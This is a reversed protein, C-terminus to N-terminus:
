SGDAQRRTRAPVFGGAARTHQTGGDPIPLNSDGGHRIPPRQKGHTTTGEQNKYEIPFRHHKYQSIRNASRRVYTPGFDDYFDVLIGEATGKRSTRGAVQTAMILGQTGDCRIVALLYPLDVAESWKTTAITVRTKQENMSKEIAKPEFAEIIPIQSELIIGDKVLKLKKDKSLDGLVLSAEPFRKWLELVHEATKCILLIQDTPKFLEACADRIADNRLDNRWYAERETEANNRGPRVDPGRVTYIICRLPVVAGHAVGEEYSVEQIVPGFYAQVLLDAGDQRGTPSASMGFMRAYHIFRDLQPTVTNTAAGHCEDYVVLQPWDSPIQHMSQASCVILDADARYKAKAEGSVKCILAKDGCVEVSREYLGRLAESKTTVVLIRTGPFVLPLHTIVFSKGYGTPCNIMGCQKTALYAFTEEQGPRMSKGDLASFDPSCELKRKDVVEFKIGRKALGKKLTELLGPFTAARENKIDCLVVKESTMKYPYTDQKYQYRYSLISSLEPHPPVVIMSGRLVTITLKM